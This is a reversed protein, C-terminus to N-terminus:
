CKLGCYAICIGFTLSIQRTQLFGADAMMALMTERSIFTNVSQPLYRYAGTRDGSIWTATRPLVHKFYANYLTRLIPNTPLSFELIILRGGPRLVRFFERVAAAPDAVNRIGFAITAVDVSGAEFPLSQADGNIWAISGTHAATSKKRAIPLMEFTFDLGIVQGRALQAARADKLGRALALTLDGTGCAVDLVRDAPQLAALEVAKQRWRQDMWLSHLRNNLDYSPAIAAFMRQVRRRKDAVLHPNSLLSQNWVSTGAMSM